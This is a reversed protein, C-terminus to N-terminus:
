MAGKRPHTHAEQMSNLNRPLVHKGESCLPSIHQEFVYFQHHKQLQSKIAKEKVHIVFYM